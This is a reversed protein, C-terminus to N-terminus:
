TYIPKLYPKLSGDNDKLLLDVQVQQEFTEKLREVVMQSDFFQQVFHEPLIRRGEVVERAQVFQWALEPKQYVFIILM